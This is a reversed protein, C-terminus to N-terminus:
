DFISQYQPVPCTVLMRRAHAPSTSSVKIVIATMDDKPKNEDMAEACKLFFDAIRDASLEENDEITSLILETIDAKEGASCGANLIGKSLMVVVSGSEIPIETISPHIGKGSGLLHTKTDWVNVAGRQYFFVPNATLRSVVITESEFDASLMCFDGSVEGAYERNIQDSVSKVSSSDRFSEAIKELVKNTIVSSIIKSKSGNRKGSCYVVSQGGSPREIIETTETSETNEFCGTKAIGFEIVM